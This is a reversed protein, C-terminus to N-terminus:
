VAILVPKNAFHCPTVSFEMVGDLKFCVSGLEALPAWRIGAHVLLDNDYHPIMQRRVRAFRSNSLCRM